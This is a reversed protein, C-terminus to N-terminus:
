TQHFPEPLHNRGRVYQALDAVKGDQPAPFQMGHTAQQSRRYFLNLLDVIGAALKNGSFDELPESEGISGNRSDAGSSFEHEGGINFKLQRELSATPVGQIEIM